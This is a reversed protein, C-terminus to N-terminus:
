ASFMGSIGSQKQFVLSQRAYRMADWIHNFNDVPVKRGKRDTKKKSWKYNLQEQKWKIDDVLLM